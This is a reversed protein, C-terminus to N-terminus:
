RDRDPVRGGMTSDLAGQGARRRLRAVGDLVTVCLVFGALAAVLLAVAAAGSSHAVLWWGVALIVGIGVPLRWDDAVLGVAEMGIERLAALLRRM